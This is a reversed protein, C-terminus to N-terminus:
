EGTFLLKEYFNKTWYEKELSLSNHEFVFIKKNEILNYIRYSNIVKGEIIKCVLHYIITKKRTEIQVAFNMYNDTFPYNKDLDTMAGHPNLNFAAYKIFHDKYCDYKIQLRNEDQSIIECKIIASYDQVTINADNVALDSNNAFRFHFEKSNTYKIEVEVDGNGIVNSYLKLATETLQHSLNANDTSLTKIEKKLDSNDTKLSDIKSNLTIENEKALSEKKENEFYQVVALIGPLLSALVILILM